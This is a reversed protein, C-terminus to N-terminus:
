HSIAGCALAGPVGQTSLGAGRTPLTSSMRADGGDPTVAKDHLRPGHGGADIVGIYGGPATKKIAGAFTKCPDSRACSNDDDGSAASVWTRTAQAHAPAGGLGLGLITAGITLPLLRKTMTKEPHQTRRARRRCWPKAAATM